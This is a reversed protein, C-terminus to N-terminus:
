SKVAPSIEYAFGNAHHFDPKGPPHALAWYSIEGNTDEIVASLGIRWARDPPLGAFRDPDLSARLVCRDPSSRLEIPVGTIESAVRMGSRYGSFQYAAWQGSPSFNLEYYGIDSAARIFAEFCTHRWLGDSRANAAVSPMRISSMQGTVIYSLGLSGTRPRAIEVDISTVAVSRSDPHLRLPQRM